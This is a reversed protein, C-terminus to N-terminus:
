YVPPPSLLYNFTKSIILLDNLFSIERFYIADFKAKKQYSMNNYSNIQALGTLGPRCKISGNNNRAIILEKQSYLAPRPGVFSMEGKLINILQPLEDISTRRIFKGIISIKIGGLKDSSINPTDIPLSRFKIFLFNKNNKGVRSQTFFIPGKDFLIILISILLFLPFLAFLGFISFIIDFIRKLPYESM